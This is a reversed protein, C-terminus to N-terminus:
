AGSRMLHKAKTEIGKEVLTFFADSLHASIELYWCNEDSFEACKVADKETMLVVSQTPVDSKVFQHHDEFAIQRDTLIEMEDLTDFFRKPDGIGALAILHLGNQSKEDLLVKFGDLSLPQKSKLNIWRMPQLTMEFRNSSTKVSDDSNAKTKTFGINKVVADVKALRWLGERLPGMPLLYGNGVGRKDLVCLELDRKMAYHQLGDDCIIVNASTNDQIFEVGRTRLPDIVTLTNERRVILAPEDGVLVASDEQTVRHPFQTQRGGYGRSLVAPSFGKARLDNVLALVLPTKGNGGLGINGVVIVPITAGKSSFIGLSFLLRRLSTLAWFIASLPALCWVWKAKSYWAIQLTKLM